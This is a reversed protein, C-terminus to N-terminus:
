TSKASPDVLIYTQWTQSATGADEQPIALRWTDTDGQQQLYLDFDNDEQRYRQDPFKVRADYQGQIRYAAQGEIRLPTQEAIAVREIQFTPVKTRLQQSLELQAQGFELAIARKVLKSDPGQKGCGTLCLLATVLMLAAVIRKFLRQQWPQGWVPQPFPPILSAPLLVSSATSTLPSRM